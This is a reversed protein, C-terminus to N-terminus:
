EFVVVEADDLAKSMLEELEFNEEIKLVENLSAKTQPHEPVMYTCCDKHPQTSIDFTGLKKAATIIDKKDEGINPRYVPLDSAQDTVHLNELTQSAVQGVSEGTVLSLANEKKAVKEALKVMARRYFLLRLDEPSERIIEKQIDSLNILCLKTQSQWGSLIEAIKKVDEQAAKKTFPHAHFHCLMVRCGRRLMKWSAVPSDIGSSVLSVVKGSVGVPLGGPGSIKEIHLFAYDEVLEIQLNIDPNELDVEKPMSEAKFEEMLFEGVKENVEQSNHPFNKQARKTSVRFSVFDKNKLIQWAEKKIEELSQPVSHAFSFNEIGFVRKLRETFRDRKIKDEHLDVLIRGHIRRVNKYNLGELADDINSVLRKEFFPRNDGKLAIEGYHILVYDLM